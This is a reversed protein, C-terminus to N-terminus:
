QTLAGWRRVLRRHRHTFLARVVHAVVPTLLRLRARFTLEDLVECGGPAPTVRRHHRWPSLLLLRSEETFQHGPGVSALMLDDYEVPLVGLLLLWARGLPEGVPVEDLRRGRWRRPMRMRLVPRLEADIGAETVALDWVDQAPAALHTTLRVTRV